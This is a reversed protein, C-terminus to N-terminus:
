NTSGPTGAGEGANAPGGAGGIGDSSQSGPSSAPGTAGGALHTQESTGMKSPDEADDPNRRSYANLVGAVASVGLWALVLALLYRELISTLGIQGVLFQHAAPLSLLVSVALVIKFRGGSEPVYDVASVSM